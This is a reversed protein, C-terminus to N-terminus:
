VFRAGMVQGTQPASIFITRVLSILGGGRRTATQQEQFLLSGHNHLGSVVDVALSFASGAPLPHKHEFILRKLWGLVRSVSIEIEFLVDEACLVSKM